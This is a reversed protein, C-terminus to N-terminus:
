QQAQVDARSAAGVRADALGRQVMSKDIGLHKALSRVSWHTADKPTTQLTVDVITGAWHKRKTARRGRGSRELEIGTLREAAFRKRWTAVTVRHVGLKDAIERNEWDEAALLIM